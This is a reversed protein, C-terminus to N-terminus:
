QVSANRYANFYFSHCLVVQFLCAFWGFSFCIAFSYLYFYATITVLCSSDRSTFETFLSGDLGHSACLKYPWEKADNGGQVHVESINFPM